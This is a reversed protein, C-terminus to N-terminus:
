PTSSRASRAGSRSRNDARIARGRNQASSKFRCPASTRTTTTSRASSSQDQRVCTRRCTAPQRSSSRRRRRAASSSSSSGPPASSPRMRPRSSQRTAAPRCGVRPKTTSRSRHLHTAHVQRRDPRHGPATAGAHRLLHRDQRRHVAPAILGLRDAADQRRHRIPPLLAVGETWGRQRFRRCSRISDLMQGGGQLIMARFLWDDPWDHINYAIGAVDAGKDKIKAALTIM